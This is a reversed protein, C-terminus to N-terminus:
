NIRGLGHWEGNGDRKAAYTDHVLSHRRFLVMDDSVVNTFLDVAIGNLETYFANEQVAEITRGCITIRNLHYTLIEGSVTVYTYYVWGDSYNIYHEIRNPTHYIEHAYGESDTVFIRSGQDRGDPGPYVSFGSFVYSGDAYAAYLVYFLRAQEFLEDFNAPMVSTLLREEVAFRSLIGIGDQLFTLTGDGMYTLLFADDIGLDHIEQTAVDFMKLRLRNDASFYNFFIADGAVSANTVRAGSASVDIVRTLESGDLRMSFLAHNDSLNRFYIKGDFYQLFDFMAQRRGGFFPLADGTTEVLTTRNNLELDFRHVGDADGLFIHEGVRVAFGSNLLNNRQDSPSPYASTYSSVDGGNQAASDKREAACGPVLFFVAIVFFLKM